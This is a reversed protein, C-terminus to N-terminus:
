DLANSCIILPGDPFRSTTPEIGFVGTVPFGYKKTKKNSSLAFSLARHARPKHAEDTDRATTLVV